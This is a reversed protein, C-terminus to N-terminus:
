PLIGLDLLSAHADRTVVVHDVLAIGVIEAAESLVRTMAIDEASPTPDGSPHNHVLVFGSAAEHLALRLVDRASVACGHLGGQAVKRFARAGNQGDLALLWMEEHDLHGLELRAYAAVAQSSSLRERPRASLAAARRALEFGACVRLAKAPGIGRRESLASPSCRSLAVLGGADSLLGLALDLVPTKPTGTGLVIALLEGDALTVIGSALARERPLSSADVSSM